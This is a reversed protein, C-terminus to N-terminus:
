CDVKQSSMIARFYIFYSRGNSGYVPPRIVFHRLKVHYKGGFFKNVFKPTLTGTVDLEKIETANQRLEEAMMKLQDVLGKIAEIRNNVQEVRDTTDQINDDLSDLERESGTLNRRFCLSWHM